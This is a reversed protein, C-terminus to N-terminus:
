KNICSTTNHVEQQLLLLLCSSSRHSCLPHHVVTRQRMEPIAWCFFMAWCFFSWVVIERSVVCQWIYAEIKKISFKPWEGGFGAIFFVDQKHQTVADGAMEATTDLGINLAQSRSDVIVM